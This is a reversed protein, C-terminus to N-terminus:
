GQLAFVAYGGVLLITFAIIIWDLYKDIFHRAADGKWKIVAAVMFFRAFRALTSAFIFIAFNIKFAGAAITFVKYPIPTFGAVAVAWGGYQAFWEKVSGYMAHASYFDLIGNGVTDMFAYGLLFGLAGGLVSGMGTIFALRYVNKPAGVGLAILLVDPPVPFFSSEAFALWFLAKRGGPKHAFSLVWRYLRRLYKM